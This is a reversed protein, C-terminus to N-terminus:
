RSWLSSDQDVLEQRLKALARKLRRQMTMASVGQKTGAVRLSAGEIVVEILAKQEAEVRALQVDSANPFRILLLKRILGREMLMARAVNGTM